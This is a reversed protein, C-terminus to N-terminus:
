LGVRCGLLFKRTHPMMGYDIGQELTYYSFSFEPDYGLYNDSTYLNIGSVFVELNNFFWIKQPIAYALTLYKLRMFSGDEIWRSSFDSNGLPDDYLARPVDTEQGEHTWRRMVAASQNSLDTMKTNQYRLYNYVEQGMVFQLNASLSWRGYRFTNSIGGFIDPIPSGIITRDFENIVRDPVGEPGSIDAFRADGAGFPVGKETTIGAEAAEQSTSYVGEYRYGYFSLIPEGVRSIYEGGPFPTVVAGDKIADVTNRFRALNFGLTWSFKSVDIIRSTFGAEWGRNTIEGNNASVTVFGTFYPQPEFVLMDETGTNYYDLTFFLRNGFLSLDIGTNLQRITEFKLSQDTIIGPVM